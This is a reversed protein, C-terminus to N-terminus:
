DGEYPEGFLEEYFFTERRIRFREFGESTILKMKMLREIASQCSAPTGYLSVVDNYMFYGRKFNSKLLEKQRPTLKINM